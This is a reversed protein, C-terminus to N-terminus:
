YTNIVMVESAALAPIGPLKQALSDISKKATDMSNRTLIVNASLERIYQGNNSTFAFVNDTVTKISPIPEM